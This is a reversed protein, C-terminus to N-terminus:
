KGLALIEYMYANVEWEYDKLQEMLDEDSVSTERQRRARKYEDLEHLEYAALKPPLGGSSALAHFKGLVVTLNWM